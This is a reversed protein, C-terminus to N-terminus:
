AARGAYEAHFADVARVVENNNLTSNVFQTTNLVFLGPHRSTVAPVTRSYNLVQLPQVRRARNVHVSVVSAEDFAPFIAKLGALFTREVDADSAEFAAETSLLYKPLYTLYHGGTHEPPMVNSMGIVGTFPLSEDAVNIVYYPSIPVTTVVVVCVAGLYETAVDPEEVVLLAPDVTERLVSAPATCIVQEFTRSEGDVRVGISREDTPTIREVRCGCEVSGGASEIASRLAEFVRRYGGTVHGLHEASASGERASFLRKAYSWIFVASVRRYHPGLKALLLPKWLKDFAERGSTRILWEEVTITELARWDEIRSARLLTWALRGKSVLSLLPFRLFELNDSISHLRDDVYFGTRTRAWHIESALGLEDLLAILQTDTPLIVHYFKDWEFGGFDHWTALGGLTPGRELVSVRHGDLALKRGLAMGTLGGGVICVRRADPSM